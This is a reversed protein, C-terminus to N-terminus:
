RMLWPRLVRLIQPMLVYAMVVASIGSSVYTALWPHVDVMLPRLAGSLIILEPCLVLWTVLVQKWRRPPKMLTEGPLSFWAELGTQAVTTAPGESLPEARMLWEARVDSATWRAMDEYTKWRGILVYEGGPIRPRIITVGDAGAFADAATSVGTLWDEFEAQKGPRVRRSMVFTVPQVRAAADSASRTAELTPAPAASGGSGPEPFSVQESM